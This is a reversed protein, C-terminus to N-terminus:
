CLFILALELMVFFFFIFKLIMLLLLVFKIMFVVTLFVHQFITSHSHCFNVCYLTAFAVYLMFYM